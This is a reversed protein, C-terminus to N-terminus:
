DLRDAPGPGASGAPLTQPVWTRGADRSTLLVTGGATASGFVWGAGGPAFAVDGVLDPSALTLGASLSRWSKGGDDTGYVVSQQQGDATFQSTLLWGRESDLFFPTAATGRDLAPLIIPHWHGGRDDSRLLQAGAAQAANARLFGHSADTFSVFAPGQISY